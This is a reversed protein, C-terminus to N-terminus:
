VNRTAGEKATESIQSLMEVVDHCSFKRALERGAAGRRRREEDDGFASRLTETLAKTEVASIWGAGAADIESAIGVQPSVLVAIGLAMAEVVCLGFSEHHSPLALLSAGALARTKAEGDLWGPLLVADVANREQVTRKLAAVYSPSGDGAIMLQWKAFRDDARADLFADLLVDIGKTPQLRSLVLVYPHATSRRAGNQEASFTNPALDFDIGPSIVVGHNLRLAAESLQKERASAYHVAAAHRLMGAGGFRLFLKKRLPKQALSWPEIHGLPRVLYPIGQRQCSRAAALCAQSFVGHIYVVDFASVNKELWTAIRSSYTFSGRGELRFFIAPVGEHTTPTELEVAMRGGPEGDTSVIQVEVGRAQLAQCLTVLAQSPGGYKPSVAPIVHLVKM